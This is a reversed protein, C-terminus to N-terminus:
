ARGLERGRDRAAIIARAMIGHVDANDMVGTAAATTGGKSTVAARLEHADRGDVALLGAAGILTQRTLARATKEDFGCEIAGRQMAEALYFLYAPGSGAVATFADVLHEPLPVVVPGVSEFIARVYAADDTSASMSPTISTAGAGISAPLNPMVRVIHTAPSLVDTLREITVGALISIVLEKGSLHPKLDRAVDTLMQPKVALLIPRVGAAAELERCAASVSSFTALGAHQFDAHKATEPEAVVGGRFVTLGKGHAGLVIARAMNGGGIVLPPLYTTAGM